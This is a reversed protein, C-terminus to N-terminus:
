EPQRGPRIIQQKNKWALVDELVFVEKGRYPFCNLEKERVLERLRAETVGLLSATEDFVILDDWKMCGPVGHRQQGDRRTKM